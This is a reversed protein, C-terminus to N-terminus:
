IRELAVTASKTEGANVTFRYDLSAAADAPTTQPSTALQPNCDPASPQTIGARRFASGDSRGLGRLVMGHPSRGAPTNAVDDWATVSEGTAMWHNLNSSFAQAGAGDVDFDSQRRVEMEFTRDKTLNKISMKVALSKNGPQFTFDQIFQMQGKDIVRTVRFTSASPSSTIPIGLGIEIRGFSSATLGFDDCIVYGDRATSTFHGYQNGPSNPSVFSTVNGQPTITISTGGDITSTFTKGTAAAAPVAAQATAHAVPVFPLLVLALAAILRPPFRPHM